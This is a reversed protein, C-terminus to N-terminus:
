FEAWRGLRARAPGSQVALRRALARGMGAQAAKTYKSFAIKEELKRLGAVVGEQETVAVRAGGTLKTTEGADASGFCAEGTGRRL